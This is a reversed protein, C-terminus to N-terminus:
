AKFKNVYFPHVKGKVFVPPLNAAKKSLKIAKAVKMSNDKGMTALEKYSVTFTHFVLSYRKVYDRVGETVWGNKAVPNKRRYGVPNKSADAAQTDNPHKKLHAALKRAKNTTASNKAKYAAYRAKAGANSGKKAM